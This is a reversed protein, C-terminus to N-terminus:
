RPGIREDALRRREDRIRARLAARARARRHRVRILRATVLGLRMAAQARREIDDPTFGNPPTRGARQKASALHEELARVQEALERERVELHAEFAYLRRFRALSRESV